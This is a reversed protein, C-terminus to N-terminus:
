KEKLDRELRTFDIVKLKQNEYEKETADDWVYGIEVIRSYQDLTERVTDPTPTINHKKFYDIVIREVAPTAFSTAHAANLRDLDDVHIYYDAGYGSPYEKKEGQYKEGYYGIM